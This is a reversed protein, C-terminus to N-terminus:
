IKKAEILRKRNKLHQKEVDDKSQGNYLV